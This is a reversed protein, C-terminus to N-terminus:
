NKGPVAPEVALVWSVSKGVEVTHLRELSGSNLDCRYVAMKGAGGGAGVVYRGGEALAFSRPTKETAVRGQEGLDGLKGTAADISFGALSDHGRNSVWAFRGNPHVHVDASTNRGEFGAPLSSLTQEPFLGKEADFRYVTIGSGSENSSLAWRGSPHFALHRPGAKEVGGPANSVPALRGTAVDFRFQFVANPSVHPVFVWSNSPDLAICHATKATEVTQVAPSEISGDKALRHVVVKGGLYSASLLWRGTGDTAVFSADEKQPLAVANLPELRGTAADIRYSALQCTSRLSAYLVKRAPDTALSGPTGDVKLSGVSTLGGDASHLRFAQIQQEPQQSVYLVTEGRVVPHQGTILLLFFLLRKM